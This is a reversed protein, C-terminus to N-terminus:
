GGDSISCLTYIELFVNINHMETTRVSLDEHNEENETTPGEMEVAASSQARNTACTEQLGLQAQKIQPESAPPHNNMEDQMKVELHTSLTCGDAVTQEQGSVVPLPEDENPPREVTEEVEGEGGFPPALAQGTSGFVRDMRSHRDWVRQGRYTFYQIRHRPLALETNYDCDCPSTEWNFDCFPRELVGLFRDVYGVVFQSSDVSSDWLIRSIVDDATRMRPKKNIEKEEYNQKQKVKKKKSKEEYEEDTKSASASKSDDMLLESHFLRCKDAFRCKGMVFYQCWNQSEKQHDQVGSTGKEDATSTQTPFEQGLIPDSQHADNGQKEAHSSSEQSAM